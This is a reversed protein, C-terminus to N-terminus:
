SATSATRRDRLDNESVTSDPRPPKESGVLTTRRVPWFVDRERGLEVLSLQDHSLWFECATGDHLVGTCKVRDGLYVLERPTVRLRNSETTDEPALKADEPRLVAVAQEGALLPTSPVGRAILGCDTAVVATEAGGPEIIGPLLNASGIFGAVFLTAPREYIDTATGIQIIKSDNMVVVRDSLSLAEDQDHTVYILTTGVEQHIHRLETQMQQRLARDLASLPEDMLLVPPRHVYSRALAVRQQQGGSLQAPRRAALHNLSVIGLAEEVRKRLPGGRMGRLRLPYAVNDFVSMHPFLAYGQLVMGLGRKHTPVNTIDRDGLRISGSTPQEFGAVMALTTSKGSGSPGLLTVFEGAAIDLDIESAAVIHGFKKTVKNLRLPLAQQGVPTTGDSM